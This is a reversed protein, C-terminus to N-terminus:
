EGLFYEQYENILLGWPWLAVSLIIGIFIGGVGDFGRGAPKHRLAGVLQVVAAGVVLFSVRYIIM